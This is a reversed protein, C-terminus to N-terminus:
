YRITLWGLIVPPALSLISFWFYDRINNECSSWVAASSALNRHCSFEKIILKKAPKMRCTYMTQAVFHECILFGQLIEREDVNVTALMLYKLLVKGVFLYYVLLCVGTVPTCQVIYM